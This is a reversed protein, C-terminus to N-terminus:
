RRRAVCRCVAVCPSVRVCLSVFVRRILCSVTAPWAVSSCVSVTSTHAGFGTLVAVMVMLAVTFVAALCLFVAISLLEAASTDARVMLVAFVGLVQICMASFSFTWLFAVLLETYSFIGDRLELFVLQLNVNVDVSLTLLAMFVPVLGVILSTSIVDLWSLARLFFMGVLPYVLLTTASTRLVGRLQGLSRYLRQVLLGMVSASATLEAAMQRVLSAEAAVSSPQLKIGLSQVKALLGVISPARCADMLHLEDWQAVFKRQARSKARSSFLAHALQLVDSPSFRQPVSAAMRGSFSGLPSVSPAHFAGAPRPMAGHLRSSRLRKTWMSHEFFKSSISSPSQFPLEAADSGDSARPVDFDDYRAIHDIIRDGTSDTDIPALYPLVDRLFSHCSGCYMTRGAKLVLLEDVLEVASTPTQNDFFEWNVMMVPAFDCAANCEIHELSVTRSDGQRQVAVEDNGIDLHEKLRAFIEDGGMVACLTNTCVGVHYDGVGHRKYMTYFTAVGSVEAPSIDLIAACAEIGEPTIRGQVSQTLHLMPLLGSRPEPYRAAIERLEAYTKEDIPPTSM